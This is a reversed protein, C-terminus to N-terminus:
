IFTLANCQIGVKTYNLRPSIYANLICASLWLSINHVEYL